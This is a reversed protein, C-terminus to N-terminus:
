TLPFLTQCLPLTGGVAQRPLHPKRGKRTEQDPGEIPCHGSPCLAILSQELPWLAARSTTPSPLYLDIQKQTLKLVSDCAEMAEKRPGTPVQSNGGALSRHPQTHARRVPKHGNATCLTQSYPPGCASGADQTDMVRQRHAQGRCPLRPATAKFSCLFSLLPYHEWCAARPFHLFPMMAQVLRFGPASARCPLLSPLFGPICIM